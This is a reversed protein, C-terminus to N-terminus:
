EKGAKKLTRSYRHLATALEVVNLRHEKAYARIDKIGLISATKKVRPTPEPNAKPWVEQMDRLFVSITVPGIGKGLGMLRRELDKGDASREYLRQLSGGYEKQLRGFIDLLRDATSFDYRTYGGKDLIEVLRDWGADAIKDATTLGNSEFTRYTKTASEERIPKAYLIAALLWKTYAQDGKKLDIGLMRSYPEGYERILKNVDM